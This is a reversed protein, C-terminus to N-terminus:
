TNVIRGSQERVNVAQQIKLKNQFILNIFIIQLYQKAIHIAIIQTSQAHVQTAQRNIHQKDTYFKAYAYAM